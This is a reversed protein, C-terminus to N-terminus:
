AQDMQRQSTRVSAADPAQSLRSVWDKYSHSCCQRCWSKFKMPGSRGNDRGFQSLPKITKCHPCLKHDKSMSRYSDKEMYAHRTNCSRCVISISGDRYHQLTAVLTQDDRALWNMTRSCDPCRMDSPTVEEIESQSPSFKGHRTANARMQGYRYHKPCLWQHGQYHTSNEPCRCCLHFAPGGDNM